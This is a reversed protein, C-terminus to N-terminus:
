RAEVPFSRFRVPLRITFTAGRHPAGSFMLTGGHDEVIVQAFRLGLGTGGSDRRTTFFPDLLRDRVADSFGVGTDEVCIEARDGHERVRVTVQVGEADSEIANRLINACARELELANAHVIPSPEELDTVVRARKRDAYDQTEFLAARVIANLEHAEKPSAANRALQLVGDVIQGCRKSDSEVDRLAAEVIARSDERDLCALAYQAAMLIGGVPNNIEHAIGAALTGIAALRESRRLTEEALKRDSVDRLALLHIEPEVNAVARFEVQVVSGDRRELAREGEYRGTALFRQWWVAFRAQEASPLLDEIRGGVLELRSRGLLACFAPNVEEFRSNENVLGFADLSNDFLAQLRRRSRELRGAYRRRSGYAFLAYVGVAGMLAAAIRFWWRSWFPGHLVIRPSMVVPSERGELDIAQLHLRYSGPPLNTYRIRREPLSHPGLWDADFGELRYRFQLRWEDVFAVAGIHLVWDDHLPDLGLVQGLSYTKGASELSQIEVQPPSPRARDFEPRYISVGRDTGIWLWGRSDVVGAARNTETGLLGQRATFCDFHEGDWRLVGNDTGFCVRGQTDEVIFYVPRDIEPGPARIKEFAKGNCRMLGGRTGVWIEGHRTEHVAFADSTRGEPLGCSDISDGDITFIGYRSAVYLRGSPAELIHRLYLGHDPLAPLGVTEFSAGERRLLANNRTTWLRGRADFHASTIQTDKEQSQWAFAGKADISALGRHGAAIWLTGTSDETLDMVRSELEDGLPITRPAAFAGNRRGEPNLITLGGPHGLVMEGSRRELVATVENAFLGHQSGYSAIRRSVIKSLGRLSSVWLNGERDLHFETVGQGVLGSNTGMEELGVDPHFYFVRELNGFYLGGAGDAQLRFDRFEPDHHLDVGALDIALTGSELRGIWDCGLVWIRDPGDVELGLVTGEVTSVRELGQSRPSLDLRFLGAETGVLFGGPTTEVAFVRGAGELTVDEWASGRHLAIAGARTAVLLATTGQESGVAFGAVRGSRIAAPGPLEVWSDGQLRWIDIPVQERACWLRGQTDVRLFALGSFRGEAATRPEWRWGDYSSLGNRTAIWIRGDPSQIISRVSTSPLGELETYTHVLYRQALAPSAALLSSGLVAHALHTRWRTRNM